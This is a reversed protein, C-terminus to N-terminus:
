QAEFVSSDGPFGNTHVSELNLLEAEQSAPTPTDVILLNATELLTGKEFQVNKTALTYEAMSLFYKTQAESIRRQADLLQELSVTMGAKRNTELADLAESAALYRNVNTQMQVHARDCDAVASMLDHLVQREQEKLLSHERALQFKAHRVAAHAQRFGVPLKLELSAEYEQFDGSSLEDFASNDSGALQQGLGRLRYITVLDLSPMLYNKAALLEMERRKVLLRQQQLESRMQIAETAISDWDFVIPADNPENGPRLLSGDSLAMGILLRLRRESAQVGNLGAFTGGSTSNNVQTRTALKGAVADQYESEFRYFQERALAEAAGSRRNSTKQAQYSQWTKRSREM